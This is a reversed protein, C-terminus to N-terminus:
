RQDELTEDHYEGCGSCMTYRPPTLPCPADEPQERKPEPPPMFASDDDDDDWIV